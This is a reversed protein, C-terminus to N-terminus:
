EWSNIILSGREPDNIVKLNIEVEQQMEDVHSIIGVIRNEKQLNKLTKFVVELAEKDLAGFGEDLFFFNHEAKNRHQVSDSLALALSLACQFMQGGSLTKVSRLNGGNMFDRVLFENNDSLELKLHQRTLHRFRINAHDVLQSLYVTSIYNVFGSGRFLSKMLELNEKRKEKTKLEKGLAGAQLINRDFIQFLTEKEGYMRNQSDRKQLMAEYEHQMVEHEERNYKRGAIKEECGKLETSNVVVRENYKEVESQFKEVDKRRSL